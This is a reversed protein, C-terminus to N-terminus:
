LVCKAPIRKKKLIVRHPQSAPTGGKHKKMFPGWSSIYVDANTEPTPNVDQRAPRGVQGKQHKGGTLEGLDSSRRYKRGGLTRGEVNDRRGRKRIGVGWVAVKKLFERPKRKQQESGLVM